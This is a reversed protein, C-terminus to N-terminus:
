NAGDVVLLAVGIRNHSRVQDSFVGVLDVYVDEAHSSFIVSRDCNASFLGSRGKSKHKRSLQILVEYSRYM